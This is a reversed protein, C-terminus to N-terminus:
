FLELLLLLLLLLLKVQRNLLLKDKAALLSEKILHKLNTHSMIWFGLIM